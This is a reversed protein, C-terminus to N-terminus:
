ADVCSLILEKTICDFYVVSSHRIEVAVCVAINKDHLAIKLTWIEVNKVPFISMFLVLEKVRTHAHVHPLLSLVLCCYVAIDDM